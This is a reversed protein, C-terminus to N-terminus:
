EYSFQVGNLQSEKKFNYNKIGSIKVSDDSKWNVTYDKPYGEAIYINGAEDDLEEGAEILSIQSSFGTTAGCNREFVVVEWKGNPSTASTVVSNACMGSAFYYGVGFMAILFLGISIGIIKLVTWM